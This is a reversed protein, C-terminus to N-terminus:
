RPKLEVKATIPRHDSAMREAVVEAAGVQWRAAPAAFIFDIEKVPDTSSFTFHADAPKAAETARSQFLRLTRSGPQDNFDGMLIYPMSLTDLVGALVKAQAYRFTDNEVWDFHVNVLTLPTGDQLEVEVMLAIRPENGEPLRLPTVQRIPWKSLIAMGYRGGQYNMFAGFAHHMGLLGGLLAAQDASGSRSVNEDVEQLGIFDADFPRLATATRELRVQDDMGAGHRINYSVVTLPTVTATTLQNLLACSASGLCCFALVVRRMHM